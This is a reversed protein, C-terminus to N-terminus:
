DFKKCMTVFKGFNHNVTIEGTKDIFIFTITFFAEGLSIGGTCCTNFLMGVYSFNNYLRSM